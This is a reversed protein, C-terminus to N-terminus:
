RGASRLTLQTHTARTLLILQVLRRHPGRPPVSRPHGCHLYVELVDATPACQHSPRGARATCTPLAQGAVASSVQTHSPTHDHHHHHRRGAPSPSPPTQRSLPCANNSPVPTQQILSSSLHRDHSPLPTAGEACECQTSSRSRQTLPCAYASPLIFPLRPRPTLSPLRPPTPPCAHASPLIFCSIPDFFGRASPVGRCFFCDVECLLPSSSPPLPPPPLFRCTDAFGMAAACHLATRGQLGGVRVWLVCCARTRTCVCVNTLDRCITRFEHSFCTSAPAPLLM